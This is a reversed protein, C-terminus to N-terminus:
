SLVRSEVTVSTVFVLQSTSLDRCVVEYTKNMLIFRLISSILIKVAAHTEKATQFKLEIRDIM